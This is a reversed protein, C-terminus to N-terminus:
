PRPAPPRARSAALAEDVLELHRALSVYFTQKGVACAEDELGHSVVGVIETAGKRRLPGGSDGTCTAGDPSTVRLFGRSLPGDLCVPLQKRVDADGAYLPGSRYGNKTIGYGLALYDCSPVHAERRVGLTRVGSVPSGLVVYGVDNAYDKVGGKIWGEHRKVRAIPFTRREAVKGVGFVYTDETNGRARAEEYTDLCHAATIAVDPAILTATCFTVVLNSATFRLGLYGIAPEEKTEVGGVIADGSAGEDESPPAACAAFTAVLLAPVLRPLM